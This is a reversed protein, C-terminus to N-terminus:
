GSGAPVESNEASYFKREGEGRGEGGPLPLVTDRERFFQGGGTAIAADASRAIFRKAL